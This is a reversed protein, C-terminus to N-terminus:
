EKMSVVLQNLLELFLHFQEKKLRAGAARPHGGGNIGMKRSLERLIKNLDLGQKGRLSLVYIDRREEIAIGVSSEGYVRAYNAARGISGPPNIVYATNEHKKVSKKVWLRLYEDEVAQKLAREVLLSMTSPLKNYSLHEVIMRKFEYDRRAGELGQILLGAELYVARKDWKDLEKKVWTTEDLYDGIAGYLAVRSYDEDLGQSEFFRYTLESASCCTDHIWQISNTMTIKSYELLPHHDIYVITSRKGIEGLLDIIENFHLESLAIDVIVVNKNDRTFERLDSFLGAPHTFIVEVDSDKKRLFATALAASAVGDSDGHAFVVWKTM